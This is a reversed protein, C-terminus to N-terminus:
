TSGEGTKGRMYAVRREVHGLRDDHKEQREEVKEMRECMSKMGFHVGAWAAGTPGLIIAVAGLIYEPQM